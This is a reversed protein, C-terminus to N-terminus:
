NIFYMNQITTRNIHNVSHISATDDYLAFNYVMRGLAITGNVIRKM